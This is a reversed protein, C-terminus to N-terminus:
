DEYRRQQELYDEWKQDPTILENKHENMWDSMRAKNMVLRGLPEVKIATVGRNKGKGWEICNEVWGMPITGKHVGSDIKRWLNAEKRSAFYKRRGCVQFVKAIMQKNKFDTYYMWENDEELFEDGAAVYQPDVRRARKNRGGPRM